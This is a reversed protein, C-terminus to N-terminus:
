PTLSAAYTKRRCSSAGRRRREGGPPAAQNHGPDPRDLAEAGPAVGPRDARRHGEEGDRPDGLLGVLVQNAKRNEASFRPVINRFDDKAFTTSADIKGTLFGKGLPSFPM